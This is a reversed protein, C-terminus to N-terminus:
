SRNGSVEQRGPARRGTAERVRDRHRGRRLQRGGRDLEIQGGMWPPLDASIPPPAIRIGRYPRPVYPEPLLGAESARERSEEFQLYPPPSGRSAENYVGQPRGGAMAAPGVLVACIGVATMIGPIGSLLLSPRRRGAALRERLRAWGEPAPAVSGTEAHLRRLAYLVLTTAALDAECARCRDVHDLARRM